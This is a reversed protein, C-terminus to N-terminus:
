VLTVIRLISTNILSVRIHYLTDNTMHNCFSIHLKNLANCRSVFELTFDSLNAGDLYISKLRDKSLSIFYIVASQNFEIGDLNAIELYNYGTIFFFDNLIALLQHRLIICKQVSPIRSSHHCNFDCYHIKSIIKRIRFTAM